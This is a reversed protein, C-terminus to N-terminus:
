HRKRYAPQAEGHVPRKQLQKVAINGFLNEAILANIEEYRSRRERKYPKEVAAGRKESNLAFAKECHYARRYAADQVDPQVRNEEEHRIQAHEAHPKRRKDAACYGRYKHENQKRALFVRDSYANEFFETEVAFHNFFYQFYSYRATYFATKELEALEHRVREDIRTAVNLGNQVRRAIGYEVLLAQGQRNVNLRVAVRYGVLNVIYRGDHSACDACRTERYYPLRDARAVDPLALM